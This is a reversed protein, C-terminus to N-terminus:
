LWLTPQRRYGCYPVIANGSRFKLPHKGCTRGRGAWNFTTLYRPRGARGALILAECYFAPAYYIVGGDKMVERVEASPSSVNLCLEEM